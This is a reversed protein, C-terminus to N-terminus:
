DYLANKYAYVGGLALVLITLFGESFLLQLGYFLFIVSFGRFSFILYTVESFYITLIYFALTLYAVKKNGVGATKKLLRSLAFGALSLIYSFRIHLMSVFLGYAAGLGLAAIFGTGILKLWMKSDFFEKNHQRFYARAERRQKDEQYKEYFGM